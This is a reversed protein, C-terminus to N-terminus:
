KKLVAISEIYFIGITRLRECSFWVQREPGTFRCFVRTTALLLWAAAVNLIRSRRSVCLRLVVSSINFWEWLRQLSNTETRYNQDSSVAARLSRKARLSYFSYFVVCATIPWLFSRLCYFFLYATSFRAPLLFGRLSHFSYFVRLVRLWSSWYSLMSIVVFRRPIYARHKRWGM